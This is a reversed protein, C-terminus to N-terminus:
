GRQPKAKTAVPKGSKKQHAQELEALAKLLTNARELALGARRLLSEVHTDFAPVTTLTPLVAALEAIQQTSVEQLEAEVSMAEDEM